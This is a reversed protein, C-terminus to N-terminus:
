YYEPEPPAIFVRKTKYRNYKYAVFDEFSKQLSHCGLQRMEKNYLKHEIQLKKINNPKGGKIRKSM